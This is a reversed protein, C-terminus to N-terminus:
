QVYEKYENFYEERKQKFEQLTIENKEDLASHLVEIVGHGFHYAKKSNEDEYKNFYDCVLTVTRNYIYKIEIVRFYETYKINNDKSYCNAIENEHVTKDSVFCKGKINRNILDTKFLETYTKELNSNESWLDNQTKELESIRNKIEKRRALVSEKNSFDVEKALIKSSGCDNGCCNMNM